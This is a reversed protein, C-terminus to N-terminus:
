QVDFQFGLNKKVEGTDPTKGLKGRSLDEHMAQVKGTNKFFVQLYDKLNQAHIWDHVRQFEAVTASQVAGVLDDGQLNRALGQKIRSDNYVRHQIYRAGHTAVPRSRTSPADKIEALARDSLRLIKVLPWVHEAGANAFV